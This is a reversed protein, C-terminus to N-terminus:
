AKKRNLIVMIDKFSKMSAIEDPEFTVDFESELEVIINLHRLSDWADCNAQSCTSDINECEFVEKLIDIVKEEM